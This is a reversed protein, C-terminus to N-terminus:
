PLPIKYSIGIAPRMSYRREIPVSPPSAAVTDGITFGGGLEQWRGVHGGLQLFFNKYGISGGIFYEVQVSGNNPNVGIGGSGNLSFKRRGWLRHNYFTFPVIQGDARDTEAFHLRTIATGDAATGVRVPQIGIQRKDLTTYLVGASVAGRPPNQYTVTFPIPDFAVQKTFFNSCTVTGTVKSNSDAILAKQYTFSTKHADLLGLVTELEAHASLIFSRSKRLIELRRAACDLRTNVNDIWAEEGAVGKRKYGATLLKEITKLQLEASAIVPLERETSPSALQLLREVDAILRGKTSEFLSQDGCIPQFLLKGTNKDRVLQGGIVEAGQCRTFWGIRDAMEEYQQRKYEVSDNSADKSDDKPIHMSRNLIRNLAELEAEIQNAEPNDPAPVSKCETSEAKGVGITGLSFIVKLFQALPNPEPKLEERKTAVACTNILSKTGSVTVVAENRVELPKPIKPTPSTNICLTNDDTCSTQGQVGDQAVSRSMESFSTYDRPEPVSASFSFLADTNIPKNGSDAKARVFISSPLNAAPATTALAADRADPADADGLEELERISKEVVQREDETLAEAATSLYQRLASIKKRMLANLEGRRAFLFNRNIDKVDPSTGLDAEIKELKAIQERLAAINEGAQQQAVGSIPALLNLALVVVLTQAIIKM